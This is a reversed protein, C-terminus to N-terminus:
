IVRIKNVEEIGWPYNEMNKIQKITRNKFNLSKLNTCKCFAWNGISIVSDPIVIREIDNKIYNANISKLISIDYQKGNADLLYCFGTESDVFFFGVNNIYKAVSDLIRAEEGSNLDFQIQLEEITM